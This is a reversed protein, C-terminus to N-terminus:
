LGAVADDGDRLCLLDPLDDPISRCVLGTRRHLGASDLTPLVAAAIVRTRLNSSKPSAAFTM